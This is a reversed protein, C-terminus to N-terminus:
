ELEWTIPQSKWLKVATTNCQWKHTQLTQTFSNVTDTNTHTHLAKKREQEGMANLTDDGRTQRQGRCLEQRVLTLFVDQNNQCVHARVSLSQSLYMYHVASASGILISLPIFHMLPFHDSIWQWIVASTFSWWLYRSSPLLHRTPTPKRTIHVSIQCSDILYTVTPITSTHAPTHTHTHKM